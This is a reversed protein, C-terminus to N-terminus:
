MNRYHKGLSQIELKVGTTNGTVHSVSRVHGNIRNEVMCRTFFLPKGRTSQM